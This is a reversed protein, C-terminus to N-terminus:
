AFNSLEATLCFNHNKLNYKITANITCKFAFVICKLRKRLARILNSSSLHLLYICDKVREARLWGCTGSSHKDSCSGSLVGRVDPCEELCM